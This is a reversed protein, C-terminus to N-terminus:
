KREPRTLDRYGRPIEFLSQAVPKREISVVRHEVAYKEEGATFTAQDLLPFGRTAQLAEDAERMMPALPSSQPESVQFMAFLEAPIGDVTSFWLSRTYGGAEIATERADRGEIRRVAASTRVKARPFFSALAQADVKKRKDVLSALRETRHTKAVDDVFTVSREKTDVIRWVDRESTDRAREGVIVIARQQVRNQPQLTTRITVVVAPVQPGSAASPGPRPSRDCAAVVAALLLVLIRRTM